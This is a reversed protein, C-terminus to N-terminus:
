LRHAIDMVSLGAQDVTEVLQSPDTKGSESLAWLKACRAGSRCYTLIPKPLEALLQGHADVDADTIHGGDVPLYAFTLGAGAALSAVADSTVHPEGEQDPRNCVISRFGASQIADIDTATIQDAVSIEDTLKLILM